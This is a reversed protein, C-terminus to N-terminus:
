LVGSERHRFLEELFDDPRDVHISVDMVAGSPGGAARRRRNLEAEVALIVQKTAPRIRLGNILRLTKRVLNADQEAGPTRRLRGQYGKLCAILNKNLKQVGVEKTYVSVTSDARM